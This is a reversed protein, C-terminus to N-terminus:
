LNLILDCHGMFLVHFEMMGFHMWQGLKPNRDSIICSVYAGSMFIRFVQDFTFTVTVRFHYSVSMWGFICECVLNPIGVEFFIPSIDQVSLLIFPIM